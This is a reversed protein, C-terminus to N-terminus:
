VRQHDDHPLVPPTEDVDQGGGGGRCWPCWPQLIRHTRASLILYIMSSQVAAWLLKGVTTTAAFNAGLLVVLYPVLFRPEAGTHAMWFRRHLKQAREAPNLPLAAACAECLRRDHQRMMLFTTITLAFLALPLTVGLLGPPPVLGIAIVAVLAAILLASAHHGLRGAAHDGGDGWHARAHRM